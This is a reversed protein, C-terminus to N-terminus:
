ENVMSRPLLDVLSASIFVVAPNARISGRGSFSPPPFRGRVIRAPRRQAVRELATQWTSPEGDINRNSTSCSPRNPPGAPTPSPPPSLFTIPISPGLYHCFLIQGRDPRGRAIGHERRRRWPLPRTVTISPFHRRFHQLLSAPRYRSVWLCPLTAYALAHNAGSPVRNCLEPCDM